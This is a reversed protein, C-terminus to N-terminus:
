ASPAVEPESLALELLCSGRELGVDLVAFPPPPLRFVGDELRYFMSDQVSKAKHSIDSLGSSVISSCVYCCHM